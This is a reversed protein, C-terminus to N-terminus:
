LECVMRTKCLILGVRMRSRAEFDLRISYLNVLRSVFYYLRLDAKCYDAVILCYNPFLSGSIGCNMVVRVIRTGIHQHLPGKPLIFLIYDDFDLHASTKPLALGHTHEYWSLVSSVIQKFQMYLRSMINWPAPFTARYERVFRIRIRTLKLVFQIIFIACCLTFQQLHIYFMSILALPFKKLFFFFFFRIRFIM